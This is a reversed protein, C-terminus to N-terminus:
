VNGGGDGSGRTGEEVEEEEVDEEKEVNGDRMEGEQQRVGDQKEEM